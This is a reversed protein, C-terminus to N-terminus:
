IDPHRSSEKALKNNMETLGAFYKRLYERNERYVNCQAYGEAKDKLELGLEHVVTYTYDMTWM